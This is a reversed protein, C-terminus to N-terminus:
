NASKQGDFDLIGSLLKIQGVADIQREVLFYAM